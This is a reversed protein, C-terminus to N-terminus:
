NSSRSCSTGRGASKEFTGKGTLFDTLLEHFGTKGRALYQNKNNGLEQFVAAEMSISVPEDPWPHSGFETFSSTM